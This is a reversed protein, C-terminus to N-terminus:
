EAHGGNRMKEAYRRMREMDDKVEASAAVRQEPPSYPGMPSAKGRAAGQPLEDEWRGQNLWTAPNPIFQGGDKSWQDSREQQRIAALLTELPVNVKQFAKRATQKGVKKPYAAWFRDFDTERGVAQGEGSLPTPPYCKNEKKKKNEKEKKSASQKEIAEAKSTTQKREGGAKGNEAKRRSADLNPKTLLFISAAPGPITNIDPEAGYLAYRCIADYAARAAADDDLISIAQFFSEYFTFQSRDM